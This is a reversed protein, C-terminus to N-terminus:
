IDIFRAEPHYYVPCSWYSRKVDDWVSKETEGESKMLTEKPVPVDTFNVQLGYNALDLEVLKRYVDYVVQRDAGLGNFFSFVGHPKLLGVIYDFLELMDQYHESFTDYYIGNFFMGSSLLADLNDQWRGELIVVNPREYWGEARLKRLVDPHAECIYHKTPGKEAIMSDIIGMGFGINLVNIESDCGDETEGGKFLANCGLRMLDSEWAMMVGDKQEKTVLAGDVYELATSLYTQQSEAPDHRYEALLQETEKQLEVDPEEASEEKQVKEESILDVEAPKSADIVPVENKEAESPEEAGFAEHDVDDTDEIIEMDFESVKRLLVEARVGADVIQRYLVSDQLGRKVLICGPTDNNLDTLCWGAGYEFLAAAIEEVVAVEAPSFDNRYNAALLHLPTTATEAETEVGHAFNHADELTYTAPVGNKLYFRVSDVTSANLPQQLRCLEHLDSM